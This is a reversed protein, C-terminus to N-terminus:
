LSCVDAIEHTNKDWVGLVFLGQIEISDPPLERQLLGLALMAFWLLWTSAYLLKLFLTSKVWHFTDPLNALKQTIEVCKITHLNYTFSSTRSYAKNNNDIRLPNM